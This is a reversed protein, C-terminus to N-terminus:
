YTNPDEGAKVKAVAGKIDGGAWETWSVREGGPAKLHVTPTGTIEADQAADTAKLAWESMLREAFTATVEASVGVGQAIEAIEEDTLGDSNEEPQNDFLAKHFDLFAEPQDKAVQAAHNLARTSYETENSLYDLYAIPHLVLRIEGDERLTDLADAIGKEQKGCYPCLYDSYIEVTVAEDASPASGGAVGDQGILIGGNSQAGQPQVAVESPGGRPIALYVALALAVTVVVGGVVMAITTTRRRRAKAEREARLREAELRAAERAQTKATGRRRENKAAAM